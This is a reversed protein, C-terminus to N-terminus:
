VAARMVALAAAVALAAGVAVAVAMVGVVVEQHRFPARHGLVAAVPHLNLRNGFLSPEPFERDSTAHRLIAATEELEVRFTSLGAMIADNAGVRTFIRDVPSLRCSAAPM